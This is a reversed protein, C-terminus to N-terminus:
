ERFKERLTEIVENKEAVTARSEEMQRALVRNVQTLNEVSVRLKEAEEEQQSMLVKLRNVEIQSHHPSTSTTNTILMEPRTKTKQAGNLNFVTTSSPSLPSPPYAGNGNNPINSHTPTTPTRSV